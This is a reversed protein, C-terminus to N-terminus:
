RQSPSQNAQNVSQHIIQGNRSRHLDNSEGNVAPSLKLEANSADIPSSVGVSIKAYSENRSLSVVDKM